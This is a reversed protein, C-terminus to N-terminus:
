SRGLFELADREVSSLQKRDLHGFIRELIIKQMASPYLIPQREVMALVSRIFKEQSKSPNRELMTKCRDQWYTM